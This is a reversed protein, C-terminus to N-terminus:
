NNDGNDEVVISNNIANMEQIVSQRREQLERYMVERTKADLPYFIKAFLGFCGTVTPLFTSMMFLLYETKASQNGYGAGEKYGIRSLIFAKITGGLTGVLKKALQKAVGTVGETRYGNKWEGYDISENRLEEPIVSRIGWVTMWLTERIMFAPIMVSLKKYNQNISGIAFVVLMLADSLHGSFIWLARTSFRERAKTVFAYSVPSVIAGPIGVVTSMSAFGLVNIYYYNLGSGLGFAGLFEDLTLILLPKNKLISKFGDLISPKETNQLVREKAVLAFYLAMVGSMTATFMGATVYLTPMKIKIVGHNVMDILLGMLIEPGKEVFGSFLNAQTILRTREIINPTITSLMGTKAISNVSGMLNSILNFIMYAVLKTMNYPGTNAFFVPMLWYFFSLLIGPGAYAVLWPKFKGFRTRTRDVIAALFIDNIIDWIGIVFTVITQFRLGIQVIDTIFIDQYKNINFSASIDYVVYAITEKTGVYRRDGSLNRAVPKDKVEAVATNEAM